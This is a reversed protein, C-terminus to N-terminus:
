LSVYVKLEEFWIPSLIIVACAHGWTSRSYTVQSIEQFRKCTCPSINTSSEHWTNFRTSMASRHIIDFWTSMASCHIFTYGPYQSICPNYTWKPSCPVMTQNETWLYIYVNLVYCKDQYLISISYEIRLTSECVLHMLLSFLKRNYWAVTISECPRM